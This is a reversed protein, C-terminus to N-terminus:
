PQSKWSSWLPAVKPHSQVGRLVADIASRSAADPQVVGGAVLIPEGVIRFGGESANPVFRQVITVPTDMGRAWVDVSLVDAKSDGDPMLGERAFAWADVTASLSAVEAKGRTIAQEQTDAEFRLLKREGNSEVIALPVLFDGAPLDSISWASHALVFGALLLAGESIVVINSRKACGLPGPM